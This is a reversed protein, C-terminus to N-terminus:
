DKIKLEKSVCYFGQEIEEEARNFDVVLGRIKESGVNQGEASGTCLCAQAVQVCQFGCFTGTRTQLQVRGVERGEIRKLRQLTLQTVLGSCQRISSILKKTVMWHCGFSGQVWSVLFRVTMIQCPSWGGFSARKILYAGYTKPYFEDHLSPLFFTM